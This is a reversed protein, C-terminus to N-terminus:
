SLSFIVISNNRKIWTGPPDNNSAIALHNNDASQDHDVAQQQCRLLCESFQQPRDGVGQM